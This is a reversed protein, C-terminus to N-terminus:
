QQPPDAEAGQVVRISYTSGAPLAVLPSRIDAPTAGVIEVLLREAPPASVDSEAAELARQANDERLVRWHYAGVGAAVLSVSLARGVDGLVPQASEVGIAM